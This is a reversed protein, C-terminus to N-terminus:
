RDMTKKYMAIILIALVLGGVMGELVMVIKGLPGIPVIEGFGVTSYVVVSFYLLEGITGLLGGYFKMDGSFFGLTHDKYSVGEIGYLFACM